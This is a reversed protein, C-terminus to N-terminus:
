LSDILPALWYPEEQKYKICMDRMKFLKSAIYSAADNHGYAIKIMNEIIKLGSNPLLFAKSEEWAAHHERCLCTINRPDDIFNVFTRPFNHSHDYKPNDCEECRGVEEDLFLYAAKMDTEVRARKKTQRRLPKKSRPLM